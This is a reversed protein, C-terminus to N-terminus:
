DNRKWPLLNRRDKIEPEDELTAYISAGQGVGAEGGKVLADLREVVELMVASQASLEEAASASEEATAANKQTVADMESVAKSVQDIGQSQEKSAAAIEGVLEGVKLSNDSVEGYERNTREMIEGGHKVKAVTGEILSETSKAAEAARMALNRVEDAVVAFGAGAEGARAAEVAANLALLNTQFAIEDISKVIKSVEESAHSIEAMSSMMEQMSHAARQMVESTQRMLGDAQGANDANQRTMSAMQELASATEELSAAQQSTGQALSQSAASVQDSAGSVQHSGQNLETIILDVPKTISRAVLFIVVAGVVLVLLAIVLNILGLERAPALLDETNASAVVIWDRGEVPAFAAIKELGKFEYDIMGKKKALIERGFDYQGINLKLIEKKDPYALVQGTHNILYVYGSQGVRLNDIFQGTFASLDLVGLLVGTVTDGRLIPAAISVVPQGSAKSMIPESFNLKGQMAIKFYERDSITIKDLVSEDSAARLIGVNDSLVFIEYYPKAERYSKLEKSVVKHAMTASAMTATGYMNNSALLKIEVARDALWSSIQGATADATSRVQEKYAKELSGSANYFSALSAVGLGVLILALTPFMFKNRLSLKM